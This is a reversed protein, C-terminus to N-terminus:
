GIVSRLALDVPAERRIRDGSVGLNRRIDWSVGAVALWIETGSHFNDPSSRCWQWNRVARTERRRNCLGRRCQDGIEAVSRPKSTEASYFM